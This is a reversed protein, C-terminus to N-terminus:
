RWDGVFRVEPELWVGGSRWVEEQVCSMLDQVNRATAGGLNVIFNAHDESVQAQGIARGKLGAREILKGAYEAGPNKFVSGANPLGAPQGRRRKAQVSAIVERLRGRSSRRLRFRVSTIMDDVPLALKRYSFELETRLAERVNGNGDVVIMSEFTDAIEGGFAGANMRVAGGVSGPIGAAFELGAYSEEVTEKALRIFRTAAGVEVVAEAEGLDQWNRFDFAKALRLVLGRVGADSVLINSGGGIITVPVAFEVALQRAMSLSEVSPPELYLDAPGGIQWSTMPALLRDRVLGDGASERLAAALAALAAPDVDTTSPLNGLAHNLRVPGDSGEAGSVFSM